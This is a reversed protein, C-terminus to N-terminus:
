NVLNSVLPKVLSGVLSVIFGDGVSPIVYAPEVAGRYAKYQNGSASLESPEVAGRWLSLGNARAQRTTYLPALAADVLAAIVAGGAANPHLGDSSDYAPLLTDATAPDELATYADVLTFNSSSSNAVLLANYADTVTQEGTSWTSASKWPMINIVIVSMSLANAQDIMSKTATWIDAATDAGQVDNVGGQIIAINASAERNSLDTAYTPEINTVLKDSAVGLNQFLFGNAALHYPWNGQNGAHVSLEATISDGVILASNTYVTV